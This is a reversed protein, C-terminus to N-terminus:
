HKTAQVQKLPDMSALPVRKVRLPELTARPQGASLVGHVNWNDVNLLTPRRAANSVSRKLPVKNFGVRQAILVFHWVWNQQINVRQANFAPTTGNSKRHLIVLCVSFVIVRVQKLRIVDQCVPFVPLQNKRPNTSGLHVVTAYCHSPCKQM